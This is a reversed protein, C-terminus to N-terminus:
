FLYAGERKRIELQDNGERESERVSRLVEDVLLHNVVSHIEDYPRVFVFAENLRM